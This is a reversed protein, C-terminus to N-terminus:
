NSSPSTDVVVSESPLYASSRKSEEVLTTAIDVSAVISVEVFRCTLPKFSEAGAPAATTVGSVVKNATSGSNDFSLSAEDKPKISGLVPSGTSRSFKLGNESLVSSLRKNDASFAAWCTVVTM